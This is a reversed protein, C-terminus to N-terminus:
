LSNVCNVHKHAVQHAQLQGDFHISLCFGDHLSSRQYGVCGVHGHSGTLCGDISTLENLEELMGTAARSADM